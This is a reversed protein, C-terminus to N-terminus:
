IIADFDKNLSKESFEHDILFAKDLAKQEPDEWLFIHSPHTPQPLNTLSAWVCSKEYEEIVNATVEPWDYDFIRFDWSFCAVPAFIDDSNSHKFRQFRTNSIESWPGNYSGGGGTGTHVLAQRFPDSGFTYGREQKYRVWVRGSWGPYGTPVGEKRGFNQPYGEPGSHSNSVSDSHTVRWSLGVCQVKPSEKYVRKKGTGSISRERHENLVKIVAFGLEDMSQPETGYISKAYEKNM